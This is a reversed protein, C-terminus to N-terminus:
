KAINLLASVRDIIVAAEARTIVQSPRFSGDEYGTIVGLAALQNVASLAWDSIEDADTFKSESVDGILQALVDEGIASVILKAMEERTIANEPKFSGDEYGSMIGKAKLAGVFGNYWADKPVDTADTEVADLGFVLSIMKAIEARTVSNSPNYNGDGSGSLVGSKVLNDISTKAWDFGDLDKFDDASAIESPTTVDTNTDDTKEEDKNEDDTKEDDTKVEEKDEDTKTDDKKAVSGSSIVTGSAVGGSSTKKFTVDYVQIDTTFATLNSAVKTIKADGVSYTASMGSIKGNKIGATENTWDKAVTAISTGYEVDSADFEYTTEDVTYKIKVTYKSPSTTYQAYYDADANVTATSDFAKGASTAWKDFTYIYQVDQDKTTAAPATITKPKATPVKVTSVVTEGNYFKVTYVDGGFKPTVVMNGKVVTDLTVENDDADGWYMFPLGDEDEDAHTPFETILDSIKKGYEVDTYDTGNITVKYKNVTETYKAYITVAGTIMYTSDINVNAGDEGIIYWNAFTYTYQATPDKTPTTGPGVINSGDEAQYEHYLSEGNIFKVTYMPNTISIAATSTSDITTAGTSDEYAVEVLKFTYDTKTNAKFKVTMSAGDIAKGVGATDYWTFFACKDTSGTVSKKTNNTPDASFTTFSLDGVVEFINPDYQIGVDLAGVLGGNSLTVKVDFEQNKEITTPATLTLTPTGDASVATFAFSTLLMCLCLVISLYKKM